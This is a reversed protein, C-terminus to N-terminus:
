PQVKLGARQERISSLACRRLRIRKALQAAIWTEFAKVGSWAKTALLSLSLGVTSLIPAVTQQTSIINQTNSLNLASLNVHLILPVVIFVGPILDTWIYVYDKMTEDVTRGSKSRGEVASHEIAGNVEKGVKVLEKEVHGAEQEVKGAQGSSPRYDNQLQVLDNDIIEFAGDPLIVKINSLSV